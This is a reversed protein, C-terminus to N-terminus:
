FPKYLAIAGALAGLLPLTVLVPVSWGPRRKPVVVLAGAVIWIVLKAWIWGPFIPSHTIGLRAMMGFGGLLVLFLGIGHLTLLLKRGGPAPDRTSWAARACLGALSVLVTFMGLFHILKYVPYSM